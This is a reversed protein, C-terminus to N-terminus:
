RWACGTGNDPPDFGSYSISMVTASNGATVREPMVPALARIVCDLVRQVQAM